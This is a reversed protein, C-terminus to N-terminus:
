CARCRGTFFSYYGDNCNPAAHCTGDLGTWYTSDCVVCGNNIDLERSIHCTNDGEDTANDIDYFQISYTATSDESHVSIANRSQNSICNGVVNLVNSTDTAIKSWATYGTMFPNYIMIWNNVGVLM